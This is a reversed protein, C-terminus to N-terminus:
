FLFGRLYVNFLEFLGNFIGGGRGSGLRFFGIGKIRVFFLVNLNDLYM